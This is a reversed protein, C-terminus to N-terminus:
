TPQCGPARLWVSGSPRLWRRPKRLLSNDASHWTGDATAEVSGGLAAM